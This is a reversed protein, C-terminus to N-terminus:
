RAVLPAALLMAVLRLVQVALVFTADVGLDTAAAVAVYFGGPTTALYADVFRVHALPVLLFGIAASAVCLAVILALATPLIRAAGRLSGLTFRLGVSLGISVYAADLVLAPVAQALGLGALALAGSVFLPGLLALTTMGTTAVSALGITVCAALVILGSVRDGGLAASPTAVSGANTVLLAAVAPTTVAILLVRLYQMTAVLQEDAGTERSIAIIGSAGGAILGFSATARDVDTIRAMLVGALISLAFTAASVLLVAPAREALSRLTSTTILVGVSVGLVSLAARNGVAPLRLQWPPGLAAALGVALGAFLSPSPAGLWRAAVTAGACAGAVSLWRWM